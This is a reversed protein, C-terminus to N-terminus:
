EMDGTPRSEIGGDKNEQPPAVDGIQMPVEDCLAIFGEPMWFRDIKEIRELRVKLPVFDNVWDFGNTLCYNPEKYFGNSFAKIAKVLEAHKQDGMWWLVGYVPEPDVGSKMFRVVERAKWTVASHWFGAVEWCATKVLERAAVPVYEDVMRTPEIREAAMLHVTRLGFGNLSNQIVLVESM